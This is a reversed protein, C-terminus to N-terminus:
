GREKDLANRRSAQAANIVNVLEHVIYPPFRFGIACIRNLVASSWGTEDTVLLRATEDLSMPLRELRDEYGMKTQYPRWIQTLAFDELDTIRKDM